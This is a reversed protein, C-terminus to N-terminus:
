KTTYVQYGWPGLTIQIDSDLEVSNRGKFSKYTGGYIKDTIIFTVPAASHNFMAMVRNGEKERYVVNVQNPKTTKLPLMRAGWEGNWLAPNDKKLKNLRAYLSNFPHDGWSIQDKEFFALPRNLGVEQGGYILPMGELAYTLVAFNEAAQGFREFVTGEWSNQDHNTTHTMKIEDLRTSNIMKAIYANIASADKSGSAVHQMAEELEWAYTMDFAYHMARDDWEALMFVEKTENLLERATVWFDSPVYGAVDCRYGDIDFEEVWYEMSELMYNRLGEKTYDLVIVDSWDWGIPPIFKGAYDKVYWEPHTQTLVNDWATHNGVWDFIIKMGLDHVHAVLRQLDEADGFESNISRYDKVAYYSGLTGKRNVEGISHIPMLWLIDVGLEKLRPLHNEFARFTGEPTFQRINVEYIVADKVWEPHKVSPLNKMKDFSTSCALLIIPLIYIIHKLPSMFYVKLM